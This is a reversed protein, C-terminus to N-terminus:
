TCPSIYCYSKLGDFQTTFEFYNKIAWVRGRKQIKFKELFLQSYIFTCYFNGIAPNSGPVESTLKTVVM